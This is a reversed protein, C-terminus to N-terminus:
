PSVKIKDVKEGLLEGLRSDKRPGLAGKKITDLTKYPLAPPLTPHFHLTSIQLKGVFTFRRM